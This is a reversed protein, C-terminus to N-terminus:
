LMSILSNSFLVFLLLSIICRSGARCLETVSLLVPACILPKTKGSDLLSSAQLGCGSCLAASLAGQGSSALQFQVGDSSDCTHKGGLDGCVLGAGCMHLTLFCKSGASKAFPPFSTIMVYASSVLLGLCDCLYDKFLPVEKPPCLSFCSVPCGEPRWPPLPAPPEPPPPPCLPEARHWSEPLRWYFGAAKWLLPVLHPRQLESSPATPLRTSCPLPCAQTSVWLPEALDCPVGTKLIEHRRM